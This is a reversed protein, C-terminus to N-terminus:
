SSAAPPLAERRALVRDCVQDAKTRRNLWESINGKQVGVATIPGGTRRRIRLGYYGPECDEIEEWRILIARFPNRVFIGEDREEIYTSINVRWLLFAPGFLLPFSLLTWGPWEEGFVDETWGGATIGAVLAWVGLGVLALIPLL